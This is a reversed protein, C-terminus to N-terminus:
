LFPSFDSCRLLLVRCSMFYYQLSLILYLSLSTEMNLCLHVLICVEWTSSITFFGGALAPSTLSVPSMLSVPKIGQWSSRSAYPMAVWKLIRAHLIGYVSSGPLSYDMPDHPTPYSQFSPMSVPVYLLEPHLPIQYIIGSMVSELYPRHKLQYFM